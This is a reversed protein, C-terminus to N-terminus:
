PTSPNNGKPGSPRRPNQVGGPIAQDSRGRDLLAAPMASDAGFRRDIRDVTREVDGWRDQKLLALQEEGAPVLGTAAVGILRFRRRTGPLGEFLAKTVDYIDAAVDTAQPLTKSRTLTTFNALRAKLQLTRAQYGGKRLRTGVRHSLALIERRIVDPDDLDQDFTEEHSVSKPPEYPIVSRDDEGRSLGQLWAAQTEGLLRALVSAPTRDLDGVTRVALRSLTEVTKEGAGWLAGVPLPDLFETVGDTPVLLLGNPKAQESALKALFKNPAIGVSCTVGLQTEVDSRVQAAMQLPTGFLMVSGGVDLFAEDMSIPEVLPTYSLLIERFRNSYIRYSEFDPAVFIGNPCLRRARVIPMASHVGFQRAEYSAASVVGRSGTGGVIVPKGKLSPDKRVEVSAYFADLDVHLIPEAPRPPAATETM